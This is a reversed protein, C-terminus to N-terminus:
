QSHEFRHLGTRAADHMACAFEAPTIPRAIAPHLGAQGAPTYQDMVNVHTDVSVEDALFRAVAATGALDEPLVLHRVLVGRNAIGASDTVLDGVQRHMERIAAQAVDAYKKVGSLDEATENDGYKLDPLYIDVVGDLLRLVEMSEYGGCNWVVPLDLGQERALALAEVIAHAQHTPTVLNLNHCEHSQLELFAEALTEVSVAEGIENRSLEWNQCYVCGLSCGAFFVAGSGHIGVLSKEEDRHAFHCLIRPELETGCRGVEGATRDVGCENPCLRCPALLDALRAARERLSRATMQETM